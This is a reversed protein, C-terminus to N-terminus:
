SNNRLLQAIGALPIRVWDPRSNLEYGLEYIAKEFLFANLLIEFDQNAKPAYEAQLSTERYANLFSATVWSYWFRAWPELLGIDEPRIIGPVSGGGNGYSASHAAYHFSRIMGAVDRLPSRKLRRDALSRIPEGEFDIIVFDRGTYLVQGLHYDGHCRTRLGSVKRDVLQRVRQLINDANTLVHLGEDQVSEPLSRLQKKLQQFVRGHLNRISQYIDRQYLPTISEPDFDPDGSPEALAIHMEATRQGLLRASGLYAGIMDHALDPLETEALEILSNTEAFLPQPGEEGATVALAKEFFWSLSDLTYSWADGQNPVFGQMMALTLPQSKRDRKYEIAGTVPATHPFGKKSLFHGIELDPNIGEEVRRFVKLILQNGYIVSTNSQEAKGVLPTLPEECESLVEALKEFAKGQIEASQSTEFTEGERIAALITEAFSPDGLADYLVGENAGEVTAIALHPFDERVREGEEGARFTMPLM